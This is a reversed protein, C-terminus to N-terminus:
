ESSLVLCKRENEMVFICYRWPMEAFAFEGPLADHQEGALVVGMAAIVLLLFLSTLLALVQFFGANGQLEQVHSRAKIDVLEVLYFSILKNHIFTSFPVFSLPNMTEPPSFHLKHKPM